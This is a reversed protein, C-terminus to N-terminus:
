RVYLSATPNFHSAVASTSKKNKTKNQKKFVYLLFVLNIYINRCYLLLTHGYVCVRCYSKKEKEKKFLLWFFLWFGLSLVNQAHNFLRRKVHTVQKTDILISGIM